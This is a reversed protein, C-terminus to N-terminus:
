GLYLTSHVYPISAPNPENEESSEGPSSAEDESDSEAEDAKKKLLQEHSPDPKHSHAPDEQSPAPKDPSTALKEPIPVQAKSFNETENAKNKSYQDHSPDPKHVHDDEAQVTYFAATSIVLIILISQQARGM